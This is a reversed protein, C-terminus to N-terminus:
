GVGEFEHRDGESIRPLGRQKELRIINILCCVGPELWGQITNPVLERSRYEM